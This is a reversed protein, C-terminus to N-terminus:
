TNKTKGNSQRDPKFNFGSTQQFRSMLLLMLMYAKINCSRVEPQFQCLVDSKLWLLLIKMGAVSGRHQHCTCKTCPCSGGV